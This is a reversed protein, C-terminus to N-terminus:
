TTRNSRKSGFSKLVGKVDDPTTTKEVEDFEYQTTISEQILEPTKIKILAVYTNDLQQKRAKICPNCTDTVKEQKLIFYAENITEANVAKGVVNTFYYNIFGIENAEMFEAKIKKRILSFQYDLTSRSINLDATIKKLTLNYTLKYRYLSNFFLPENLIDSIKKIRTDEIYEDEIFEEPVEIDNSELKIKYLPSSKNNFINLIIRKIYNMVGETFYLQVLKENSLTLLKIYLEQRLDGEYQKHYLKNHIYRKIDPDFDRYICNVIYSNDM